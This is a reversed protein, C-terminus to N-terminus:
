SLESAGVSVSINYTAAVSDTVTCKYVANQTEGLAVTVEFATAAGTPATVTFTDGSVKTWAYTYPGTGGSATVTVTDTTVLGSGTRTGAVSSTDVTAVLAGGSAAGALASINTNQAGVANTLSGINTVYVDVLPQTGSVIANTTTTVANVGALLTGISPNDTDQGNQLDDLFRLAEMTIEGTQMNVWQRPVIRSM